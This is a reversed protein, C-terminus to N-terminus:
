EFRKESSFSFRLSVWRCNKPGIPSWSRRWFNHFKTRGRSIIIRHSKRDTIEEWIKRRSVEKEKIIVHSYLSRPKSTSSWEIIIIIMCSLIHSPRFNSPQASDLTETGQTALEFALAFPEFFPKKPEKPRALFWSELNVSGGVKRWAFTKEGNCEAVKLELKSPPSHWNRRRSIRQKSKACSYHPQRTSTMQHSAAAAVDRLRM